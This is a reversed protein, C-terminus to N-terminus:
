DRQSTCVCNQVRLTSVYANSIHAIKIRNYLRLFLYVRLRKGSLGFLASLVMIEAGDTKLATQCMHCHSEINGKKSGGEGHKLLKLTNECTSSRCQEGAGENGHIRETRNGHPRPAPAPPTQDREPPPAPPDPM